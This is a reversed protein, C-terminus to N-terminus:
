QKVCLFEFSYYKYGNQPIQYITYGKEKLTNTITIIENFFPIQESVENGKPRELEMVIQKPCINNALMNKLVVLGAGEIDMKLVDIDTHKNEAMFTSMTDCKATFDPQQNEDDPFISSSGGWKPTYFKLEMPHEWVGYPFFHFNSNNQNKMYEISIPTPDYMFVKCGIENSISKDFEIHTGIGLSYIVSNKDLKVRNDLPYNGYFVHHDDLSNFQQLIIRNIRRYPNNKETWNNYKKYKLWRNKLAKNGNKLLTGKKINNVIKQLISM